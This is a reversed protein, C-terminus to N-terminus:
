RTLEAPFRTAFVLPPVSEPVAVLLGPTRFLQEMPVTTVRGDSRVLEVADALPLVTPVSDTLSTGTITQGEKTYLGLEAVRHPQGTREYYQQLLPRAAAYHITDWRRRLADAYPRCAAPWDFPAWGFGHLSLPQISVTRTESELIKDAMRAMFTLGAPDASGGVVLSDVTPVLVVPDGDVPLGRILEPRLLATAAFRVDRYLHVSEVRQAAPVAQGFGNAVAADLAHPLGAGWQALMGAALPVDADPLDLYPGVGLDGIIPQVVDLAPAAHRAALELRRIELPLMGVPRIALLRRAHDFTPPIQM